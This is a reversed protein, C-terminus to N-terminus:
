ENGRRISYSLLLTSSSTISTRIDVHKNERYTRRKQRLSSLRRLRRPLIIYANLRYSCQNITNRVLGRLTGSYLLLLLIYVDAGPHTYLIYIYTYQLVSEFRDGTKRSTIIIAPPTSCIFYIFHAHVLSGRRHTKQIIRKQGYIRGRCAVVGGRRLFYSVYMHAHIIFAM